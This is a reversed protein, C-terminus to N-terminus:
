EVGAVVLGVVAPLRRLPQEVLDVLGKCVGASTDRVEELVRPTLVTDDRSKGALTLSGNNDACVLVADVQEQWGDESSGAGVIVARSCDGNEFSKAHEELVLVNRMALGLVGHLEVPVTGLLSTKKTALSDEARVLLLTTIDLGHQLLIHSTVSMASNSSALLFTNTNDGIENVWAEGCEDLLDDAGIARDGVNLSLAPVGARIVCTSALMAVRRGKDDLRVELVAVLLNVRGFVLNLVQVEVVHKLM